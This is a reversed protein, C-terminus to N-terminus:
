LADLIVCLLGAKGWMCKRGRRGVDSSESAWWFDRHFCCRISPSAVSVAGVGAEAGQPTPSVQPGEARQAARPSSRRLRKRM